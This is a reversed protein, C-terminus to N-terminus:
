WVSPHSIRGFPPQGNVRRSVAVPLRCDQGDRRERLFTILSYHNTLLSLGEVSFMLGEVSFM